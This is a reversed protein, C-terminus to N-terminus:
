NGNGVVVKAVRLVKDGLMYGREFEDIIIGDEGPVQTMVEHLEPNVPNWKSVFSQVGMKELDKLLTKQLANIWEYLVGNRMDEPTGVIIRELDDLRPLIKRLIDWRMFALMDAKDRETRKTYNEYDAQTRALLEKLRTVEQSDSREEISQDISENQVSEHHASSEESVVSTDQTQERNEDQLADEDHIKSM